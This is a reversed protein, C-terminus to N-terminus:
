QPVRGNNLVVGVARVGSELAGQMWSHALSAHEGAIVIRGEPELIHRHLESHQGPMFWCFAGGTWRHKDWGWVVSDRIAGKEAVAPHVTSLHRVVHKVADADDGAAMRRAALGWTYSALFAGGGASVKPDRAKANDSPYYTMGTPLDTITGGGYIGDGSEWFRTPCNLLVKTASEYHLVRMARQKEASFAPLVKVRDLVSFPITCILYDGAVRKEEGGETFRAEVVGATADQRIETVECGCRPKAKLRSVFAKPLSDMGGEIEDLDQSYVELVEDRLVETAATHFLTEEAQTVSLYEIAEDSLEAREFLQRLSLRDLDRVAKTKPVLAFLDKREDATLKKWPETVAREWLADSSKGQEWLALKFASALQASDKQRVKKGRAVCFAEPNTQVFPRVRLGFTKIYHRTLDHQKPIRMAGLEAHHGDAFRHTRVRGGIHKPEAELITVTHGKQELEYASVLGALGAGVVIVRKPKPPSDAATVRHLLPLGVVTGSLLAARQLFRRRTLFDM